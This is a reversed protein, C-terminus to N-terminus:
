RARPSSAASSDLSRPARCTKSRATPYARPNTPVTAVNRGFVGGACQRQGLRARLKRCPSGACRCPLRRRKGSFDSPVIGLKCLANGKGGRQGGTLEIRPCTKVERALLTASIYRPRSAAHRLCAAAPAEANQTVVIERGGKRAADLNPIVPWEVEALPVNRTVPAPEPQADPDIHIMTLPDATAKEQVAIDASFRKLFAAFDVDQCRQAATTAATRSPAATTAAVTSGAPQAKCAVM